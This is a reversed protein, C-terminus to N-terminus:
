ILSWFLTIHTLSKWIKSFKIELIVVDRRSKSPFDVKSPTSIWSSYYGDSLFLTELFSFFACFFKRFKVFAAGRLLPYVCLFSSDSFFLAESSSIFTCFLGGLFCVFVQVLFVILGAELNLIFPLSIWTNIVYRM